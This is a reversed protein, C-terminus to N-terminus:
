PSYLKLNSIQGRHNERNAYYQTNAPSWTGIRIDTWTNRATFFGFVATAMYSPRTLYISNANIPVQTDNIYLIGGFHVWMQPIRYEWYVNYWTNLEFPYDYRMTVFYAPGDTIQFEFHEANASWTARFINGDFCGFLVQPHDSSAWETAKFSFEIAFQPPAFGQQTPPWRSTSYLSHTSPFVYGESGNTIEVTQLHEHQVNFIINPDVAMVQLTVPSVSVDEIMSTYTLTSLFPQNTIVTGSATAQGIINGDNTRIIDATPIVFDAGVDTTIASINNTSIEYMINYFSNLSIEYMINDTITVNRSTDTSNGASDTATYTLTYSGPIQTFSRFNVISNDSIDTVTPTIYNVVIRGVMASHHQCNYYYIGTQTPSWSVTPQGNSTTLSNTQVSGSASVDKIWLPHSSHVTNNFIVTDGINLYVTKNTGSIDGTRDQGNLVYLNPVSNSVTVTITYSFPTGNGIITGDGGIDIVNSVGPDVFPQTILDFTNLSLNGGNINIIPSVTDIDFGPNPFDATQGSPDDSVILKIRYTTNTGGNIRANANISWEPFFRTDQKINLNYSISDGDIFQFTRWGIPLNYDTNSTNTTDFQRIYSLNNPDQQMANFAIQLLKATMSANNNSSADLLKQHDVTKLSGNHSFSGHIADNNLKNRQLQSAKSQFINSIDNDLHEENSFVDINQFAESAGGGFLDVLLNKIVYKRESKTTNIKPNWQNLNLAYSLKSNDNSGTNNSCFLFIQNMSSKSVYLILNNSADTLDPTAANSIVFEGSISTSANDINLDYAIFNTTSM